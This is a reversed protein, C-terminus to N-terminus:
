INRTYKCQPYRNCALFKGYRGSKVVVIGDCGPNPCKYEDPLYKRSISKIIRRAKYFDFGALADDVARKELKERRKEVLSHIVNAVMFVGVIIGLIAWGSM